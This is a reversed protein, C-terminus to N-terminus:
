SPSFSEQDDDQISSEQEIQIKDISEIVPNNQLLEYSLDLIKDEKKNILLMIDKSSFNYKDFIEMLFKHNERQKELEYQDKSEQTIVATMNNMISPVIAIVFCGVITGLILKFREMSMRELVKLDIHFHFEVCGPLIKMYVSLEIRKHHTNYINNIRDTIYKIIENTKSPVDIRYYDLESCKITFELKVRSGMEILRDSYKDLSSFIQSYNHITIAPFTVGGQSVFNIVSSDM